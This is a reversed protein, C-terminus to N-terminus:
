DWNGLPHLHGNQGGASAWSSSGKRKPLIIAQNM